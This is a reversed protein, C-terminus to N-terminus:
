PDVDIASLHLKGELSLEEELEQSEIPQAEIRAHSQSGDFQYHDLPPSQFGWKGQSYTHRWSM